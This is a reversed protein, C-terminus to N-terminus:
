CNSFYRQLYEDLSIEDAAEIALQRRLSDAAEREFEAVRKEHLPTISAFYESHKKAMEFTYEFFSSGTQRLEDLLRASPTTEPHAVMQQM